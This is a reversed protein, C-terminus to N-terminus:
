RRWRRRGGVDHGAARKACPGARGGVADVGIRSLPKGAARPLSTAAPLQRLRTHVHRPVAPATTTPYRSPQSQIPAGAGAAVGVMTAALRAGKM